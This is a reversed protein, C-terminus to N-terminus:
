LPRYPAAVALGVDCALAEAAGGGVLLLAAVARGQLFLAASVGLAIVVHGMLPVKCRVGLGRHCNQLALFSRTFTSSWEFRKDLENLPPIKPPLEDSEWAM